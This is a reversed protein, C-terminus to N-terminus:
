NLFLIYLTNLLYFHLSCIKLKRKIQKPHQCSFKLYHHFCSLSLFVSLFSLFTFITVCSSFLIIIIFVHCLFFSLFFSPLCSIAFVPPGWFPCLPLHPCILVPSFNLMQKELILSKCALPFDHMLIHTLSLSLSPSM